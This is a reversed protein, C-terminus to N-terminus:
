IIKSSSLILIHSLKITVRITDIKLTEIKKCLVRKCGAIVENRSAPWPINFIMLDGFYTDKVM